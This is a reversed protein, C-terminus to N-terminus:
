SAELVELVNGEPDYGKCCIASGWQWEDIAPDIGGGHLPCRGRVEAISRVPLLLKIAAECRREVPQPPIAAPAAHLILAMGGADLVAHGDHLELLPLGIADRYFGVMADLTGCFIVAGPLPVPM